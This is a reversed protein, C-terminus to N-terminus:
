VSRPFRDTTCFFSALSSYFISPTTSRLSKVTTTTGSEGSQNTILKMGPALTTAPPPFTPALLFFFM